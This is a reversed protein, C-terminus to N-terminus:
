LILRMLFLAVYLATVSLVVSTVVYVLPLFVGGKQMLFVTDMSFTSFTTFGGCFGITLFARMAESASWRLAFAEILAGLMFSGVLNIILTGWPFSSAFLRGVGVGVLYRAASGLSGGLAVALVNTLNL